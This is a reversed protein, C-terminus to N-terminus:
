FRFSKAAKTPPQPMPVVGGDKLLVLLRSFPLRAGHSDQLLVTRVGPRLTHCPLAAYGLLLHEQRRSGDYIAVRVVALQRDSVVIECGDRGGWVPNFGNKSVAESQWSEGNACSRADACAAAFAGGMVEVSVVPSAVGVGREFREPRHLPLSAAAWADLSPQEEGAKRLLFGCLPTLRLKRLTVPPERSANALLAEANLLATPKLVYGCGGNARFFGRACQLERDSTQYNLACLQAGAAWFPFPNYNSSKVRRADPYVRTVNTCNFSSWLM